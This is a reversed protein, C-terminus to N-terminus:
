VDRKFCALDSKVFYLFSELSRCEWVARVSRKPANLLVPPDRLESSGYPSLLSRVLSKVPVCVSESPELRIASDVLRANSVSLWPASINRVNTPCRSCISFERFVTSNKQKPQWKIASVGKWENILQLSCIHRDAFRWTSNFTHYSLLNKRRKKSNCPFMLNKSKEKDLLICLCRIRRLIM